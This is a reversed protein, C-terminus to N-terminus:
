SNQSHANHTYCLAYYPCNEVQDSITERSVKSLRRGRKHKAIAVIRGVDAVVGDGGQKVSSSARRTDATLADESRNNKYIQDLSARRDMM